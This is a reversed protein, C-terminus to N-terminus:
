SSNNEFGDQFLIAFGRSIAVLCCVAVEFVAVVASLLPISFCMQRCPSKFVGFAFVCEVLLPRGEAFIHNRLSLTFCACSMARDLFVVLHLIVYPLDPLPAIIEVHWCLCKLGLQAFALHGHIYVVVVEKVSTSRGPNFKSCWDNRFLEKAFRTKCADYEAALSHNTQKERYFAQVEPMKSSFKKVKDMTERPCEPTPVGLGAPDSTNVGDPKLGMQALFWGEYDVVGSTPAPPAEHMMVERAIRFVKPDAEKGQLFVQAFEGMTPLEPVMAMDPLPDANGAPAQPLEDLQTSEIHTAELEEDVAPQDEDVAPQGDEMREDTEAKGGGMQDATQVELEQSSGHDVTPPENTLRITNLRATIGNDTALDPGISPRAMQRLQVGIAKEDPDKPADLSKSVPPTHTHFYLQPGQFIHTFM